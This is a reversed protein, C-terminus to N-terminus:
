WVDADVFPKQKVVKKRKPIERQDSERVVSVGGELDPGSTTAEILPLEPEKSLIWSEAIRRRQSESLEHSHTHSVEGKLEIRRNDGYQAPNVKSSYWQVISARVKAALAEDKAITRTELLLNDVLTEAMQLRATRYRERFGNTDHQIWAYVTNVSIHLDKVIEPLVEGRALRECVAVGMRETYPSPKSTSRKAKAAVFKGKAARSIVARRATETPAAAAESVIASFIESQKKRAVDAM